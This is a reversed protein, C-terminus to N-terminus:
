KSSFFKNFVWTYAHFVFMIAEVALILGLVTFLDSVPFVTGWSRAMDVAWTISNSVDAPLTPTTPLLAFIVGLVGIAAFTKLLLEIM